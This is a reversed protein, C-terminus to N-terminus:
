CQDGHRRREHDEDKHGADEGDKGNVEEAAGVLHVKTEGGERWENINIPRTEALFCLKHEPLTLEQASDNVAEASAHLRTISGGIIRRFHSSPDRGGAACAAIGTCRLSVRLPTRLPSTPLPLPM